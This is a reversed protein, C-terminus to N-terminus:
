SNYQMAVAVATYLCIDILTTMYALSSNTLNILKLFILNGARLLLDHM